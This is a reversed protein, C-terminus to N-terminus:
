RRLLWLLALTVAVAVAVQLLLLPVNVSAEKMCVDYMRGAESRAGAQFPNTLGNLKSEELSQRLTEGCYLRADAVGGGGRLVLPPTFFVLWVIVATGLLPM